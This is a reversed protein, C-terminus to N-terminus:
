SYFGVFVLLLVLHSGELTSGLVFNKDETSSTGPKQQSATIFLTHRVTASRGSKSWLRGVTKLLCILQDSVGQAQLLSESWGERDCKSSSANEPKWFNSKKKKKLGLMNFAKMQLGAASSQNARWLSWLAGRGLGWKASVEACDGGAGPGRGAGASICDSPCCWLCLM